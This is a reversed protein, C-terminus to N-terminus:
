DLPGVRSLPSVRFRPTHTIADTPLCGFYRSDLSNEFNDGLVFVADRPVNLPYTPVKFRLSAQPPAPRSNLGTPSELLTGNVALHGDIVEIRDGPVAVVRQIFKSGPSSPSDFVVLDGRQHTRGFDRTAFIQDGPMLTPEGNSSPISYVKLTGTLVLVPLLGGLAAILYVIRKQRRTAAM